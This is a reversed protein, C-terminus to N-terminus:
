TNNIYFGFTRAVFLYEMPHPPIKVFLSWNARVSSLFANAKVFYDSVSCNARQVNSGM